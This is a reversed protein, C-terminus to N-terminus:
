LVHDWHHFAMQKAHISSLSVKFLPMERGLIWGRMAQATQRLTKKGQEIGDDCKKHLLFQIITL